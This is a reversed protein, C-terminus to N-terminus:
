RVQDTSWLADICTQHLRQRPPDRLTSRLTEQACRPRLSEPDCQLALVPVAATEARRGRREERLEAEIEASQRDARDQVTSTLGDALNSAGLFTAREKRGSRQLIRAALPRAPLRRTDPEKANLPLDLGRGGRSAPLYGGNSVTSM